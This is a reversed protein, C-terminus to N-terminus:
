ATSGERPEGGEAGRPATLAARRRLLEADAIRVGGRFLTVAGQAELKKLSQNVTPRTAGALDAIDQQTLPLETGNVPGGHLSALTWIRRAVRRDVSVYLAEVLHRTLRDVREALLQSAAVRVSPHTRCVEDFAESTLMRTTVADLALVTATRLAGPLVLAVEGVVGGPGVVDLMVVDGTETSVEVALRGSEVVHLSDGPDGASFLKEGKAYHCTRCADLVRSREPEPLSALLAVDV